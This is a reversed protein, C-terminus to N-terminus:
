GVHQHLFEISRELALAASAPDFSARDTCNFGHDAPYLHYVGAPYAARVLAVDSAPIHADREGFHFMVPCRPTQALLQPLRGGYYSVAAAIRLECAALYALAGGWCYGVVGVRGATSAAAVAAGRDELAQGRDVRQMLAVGRPVDAYPVDVGRELRDFLAPAIALYGAAAYQHAVARIHRTVGFIEQVIVVGGRPTGVPLVRYAGLAHGDAAMLEVTESTPDTM